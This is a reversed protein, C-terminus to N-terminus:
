GSINNIKKQIEANVEESTKGETVIGKLSLLENIFKQKQNDKDMENATQMNAIKVDSQDSQKGIFISEVAYVMRFLIRYVLAASFGGLMALMPRSAVALQASGSEDVEPMPIITALMIGAIIGLVYRIWYSAEYKPDFTNNVIYRNAQFLGSFTAGLSASTLYFSLVVFLKFDDLAYIGDSINKVNIMESCSILIFLILSVIAVVMLRRILKVPGLFSIWKATQSEKYLLWITKPQAPAIKKSLEKHLKLVEKSDMKFDCCEKKSIDLIASAATPIEKGESSLHKVMAFCEELLYHKLNIEKEAGGTIFDKQKEMKNTNDTKIEM